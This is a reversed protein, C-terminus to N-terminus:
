WDGIQIEWDCTVNYLGSSNDYDLLAHAGLEGTNVAATATVHGFIGVERIHFSCDAKLFFTSFGLTDETLSKTIIGERVVEAGLLADTKVVATASTGLAIYTLGTNWDNTGDNYDRLLNALLTILGRCYVNHREVVAHVKGNDDVAKLRVNIRAPVRIKKM